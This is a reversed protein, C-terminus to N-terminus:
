PVHAVEFQVPSVYGLTQHLRQRNYFMEIFDFVEAQAEERTHYEREHVLENKLTSFFSEAVANDYCHGLSEYQGGARRPWDSNTRWVPM